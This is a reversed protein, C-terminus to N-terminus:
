PVTTKVEEKSARESNEEAAQDEKVKEMMSGDPSPKETRDRSRSWSKRRDSLQRGLQSSSRRIGSSFTKRLPPEAGDLGLQRRLEPVEVHDRTNKMRHCWTMEGDDFIFEGGVQWYDGGKFASRGAKLNQYIARIMASPLSYQMYQPAKPGLSLTRAMGLEAYLKKSPDAYIPYPCKTERAYMPILEPQGCGVIRINMPPSLSQLVDPTVSSCLSRLYEQCNQPLLPRDALLEALLSLSSTISVGCFFHRIFIVLTRSSEDNTPAYLSKFTHPKGDKDLVPLEAIREVDKRRPANNNVHVDGKYDGAPGEPRAVTEVAM